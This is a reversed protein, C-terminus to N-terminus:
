FLMKALPLLIRDGNMCEHIFNEKILSKDTKKEKERDRTSWIESTHTRINAIKYTKTPLEDEDTNEEGNWNQSHTCATNWNVFCVGGVALFIQGYMPLSSPASLRIETGSVFRPFQFLIQKVTASYM